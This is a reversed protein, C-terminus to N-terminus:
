EDPRALGSDDRDGPVRDKVMRAGAVPKEGDWDEPGSQRPKPLRTLGAPLRGATRGLGELIFHIRGHALANTADESKEEDFRFPKQNTKSGFDM